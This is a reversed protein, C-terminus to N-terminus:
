YCNNAFKFTHYLMPFIKKNKNKQKMERLTQAEDILARIELSENENKGLTQSASYTLKRLILYTLCTWNLLGDFLMFIVQALIFCTLGDAKSNILCSM